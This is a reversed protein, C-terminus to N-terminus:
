RRIPRSRLARLVGAADPAVVLTTERGSATLGFPRELSEDLAAKMAPAFEQADERTDWVWRIVVANEAGRRWLEYRDGGWGESAERRLPGGTAILQATQWEGFVGETAKEWGAGLAEGVGPLSVKVPQEVSLWKEPHLVQETSLPPRSRLAVNLLRWSGAGREYLSQAFAQGGIYPFTLGEM